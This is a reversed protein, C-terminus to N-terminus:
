DNWPSLIDMTHGVRPDLIALSCFVIMGGGIPPRLLTVLWIQGHTWVGYIQGLAIKPIVRGLKVLNKRMKNTAAVDCKRM